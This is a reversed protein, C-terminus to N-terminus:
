PRTAEQTLQATGTSELGVLDLILDLYAHAATTLEDDGISEDAQHAQGALDGPGCVITALGLDRSVFGGDCAASWAGVRAPREPRASDVAALAARPLESDPPTSFGPMAMTVAVEAAIGDGAIREDIAAQLRAAVALADEDPLLRRDLWLRADPAVISSGRGGTIRGANWTGSGLTPHPRADLAGQDERLLALIRGAADIANRGEQPRGSHAPVGTIDVELYADGRCAVVVDLDTPEAVVCGHLAPLRAERVWARIGLGLDEEDVTCAVLVPGALRQGSGPLRSALTGLVHAIVALGGKMDSAGRGVIRGAERRATFPDGSWGPGAPVVDSHGLFLLGPASGGELTALLNPRGPAVEDLEVSTGAARLADGLRRAAHDETGGPNTSDAEILACALGAIWEGDIAAHLRERDRTAATGPAPEPSSM